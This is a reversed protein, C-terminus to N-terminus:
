RWIQNYSALGSHAYLTEAGKTLTGEYPLGAGHSLWGDLLFPLDGDAEIWVGNYKRAIHLHTGTSFGGECSPHGIRDGANLREGAEVREWSDVHMYLVVWGTREDGDGDLDQLVQGNGTRLILGQSVAVVWDNSPVCGYANNSPAFDLAGWAAYNGWASHPGGTFSWAVDQEFPLQLAPQSLDAPFLSGNPQHFPASLFAELALRMDEGGMANRWPEVPLLQSFLHQVAVTAANLGKGPPIVLGEAFVYPGLWGSRWRYFGANLQDAAWALQHGLGDYGEQVWGMPYDWNEVQAADGFVWGSQFELIALLVAPNISYSKAVWDVVQLGDMREDGIEDQVQLLASQSPLFARFSEASPVGPGYVLAADSLLKNAPGEPEPMQPPITLIQGALLWSSADLGNTSQIQQVGVGYTQAIGHLSDGYRVTYTEYWDRIQPAEREPDPTPAFPIATPNPKESSINIAAVQTSTPTAVPIQTPGLRVVSPTQTPFARKMATDARACALLSLFGIVM